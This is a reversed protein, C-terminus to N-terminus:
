FWCRPMHQAGIPKWPMELMWTQSPPEEKDAEKWSRSAKEFAQEKYCTNKKDKPTTKKDKNKAQIKEFAEKEFDELSAPEATEGGKGGGKSVESNPPARAAPLPPLAPLALRQQQFASVAPQAAAPEQSPADMLPLPGNPNVFQLRCDNPRIQWQNMYQQMSAEFAQRQQFQQVANQFSQMQPTWQNQPSAQSEVAEAKLLNNNKRVAFKNLLPALNIVKGLPVEQDGYAALLWEAGMDQPIHPYAKVHPVKPNPSLDAFATQFDQLLGNYISTPSPLPQGKSQMWWLLIACCQKKTKEKLSVLGCSRLRTALTHIADAAVVTNEMSDWDNKTLYPSICPFNQGGVVLQMASGSSSGLNDLSEVLKDKWAQDLSLDEVGDILEMYAAPTLHQQHQMREELSQWVRVLMKSGPNKQCLQAFSQIEQFLDAVSWLGMARSPFTASPKAAPLIGFHDSIFPCTQIWVAIQLGFM